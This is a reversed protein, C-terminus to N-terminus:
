RNAATDIARLSRHRVLADSFTAATRSGTRLDRAIAAYALAVNYGLHGSDGAVTMYKAPIELSSLVKEGATAGRISVRGCQLHGSPASIVLDGQTGNIEWHFRTGRQVGGRYHISAVVGSRLRGSVVLQDPSSVAVSQGGNRLRTRPRRVDIIARPNAMEGFLFCLADFAHAFPVTMMTAGNDKDQYLIEDQAIERQGWPPGAAGLVTTSLVRGVYGQAILDRIFCLAPSQRAQLGVFAPVGAQRALTTLSRAEEFNRGLPWECFVAKGAELAAKAVCFHDPVGVTVAVLEIDPRALLDAVRDTAFPLGFHRAAADASALSTGAVGRVDYSDLMALAPMHAQGAWGRSASLGIFGIGIKQQQM